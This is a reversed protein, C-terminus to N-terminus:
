TEKGIKLIAETIRKTAKKAKPIVYREVANIEIEDKTVDDSYKFTILDPYKKRSTIKVVSKLHHRHQVYAWGQKKPVERLTFLLSDM